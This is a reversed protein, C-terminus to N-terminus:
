YKKYETKGSKLYNIIHDISREKAEQLTKTFNFLFVAKEGISVFDLVERNKKADYIEVKVNIICYEVSTTQMGGVGNMGMGGTNRWEVRNTIEFNSFHIVYDANEKNVSAYTSNKTDISVDAYLYSASLKESFENLYNLSFDRKEAFNKEFTKKFENVTVEETAIVIVNKTKPAVIDAKKSIHQVYQRSVKCSTVLITIIVLLLLQKKM